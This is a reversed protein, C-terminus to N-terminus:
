NSQLSRFRFHVKELITALNFFLDFDIVVTGSDGSWCMVNTGEQCGETRM